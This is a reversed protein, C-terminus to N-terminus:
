IVPPKSHASLNRYQPLYRLHNRSIIKFFRNQRAFPTMERNRVIVPRMQYRRCVEAVSAGAQRAEELIRYKEEAKFQRRTM